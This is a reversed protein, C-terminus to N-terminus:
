VPLTGKWNRQPMFVHVKGHRLHQPARSKSAHHKEKRHVDRGGGGKVRDTSISTQIPQKRTAAQAIAEQQARTGQASLGNLVGSKL